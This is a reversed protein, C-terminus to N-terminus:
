FLSLVDGELGVVIAGLKERETLGSVNFYRKAGFLWHDLKERNFTPMELKRVRRWNEEEKNQM